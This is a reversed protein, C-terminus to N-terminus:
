EEKMQKVEIVRVPNQMTGTMNVSQRAKGDIIELLFQRMKESKIYSSIIKDYEKRNRKRLKKLQSIIDERLSFPKSKKRGKPNGSQGKKWLHKPRKATTKETKPSQEEKTPNISEEQKKPTEERSEVAILPSISRLPEIITDQETTEM